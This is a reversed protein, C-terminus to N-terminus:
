TLILSPFRVETRYSSTKSNKKSAHHVSFINDIQDRIKKKDHDSLIVVYTNDMDDFCYDYIISPVKHNYNLIVIHKKLRLHRRTSTSLELVSTIISTVFGVTGGTLSIMGLLVVVTTIVLSIPYDSYQYRGSPNVMLTFAFRIMEALSRGQNEPLLILLVTSLAIFLINVALILLFMFVGPNNQAHVTLKNKLKEFLSLKNEM